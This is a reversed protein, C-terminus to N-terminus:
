ADASGDPAGALGQTRALWPSTDGRARLVVATAPGRRAASIGVGRLTTIYLTALGADATLAARPSAALTALAIRRATDM